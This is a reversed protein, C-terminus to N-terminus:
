ETQAHEQKSGEVTFDGFTERRRGIYEVLSEQVRFSGGSLGHDGPQGVLFNEAALLEEPAIVLQLGEPKPIDYSPLL